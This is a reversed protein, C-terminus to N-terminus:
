YLSKQGALRNRDASRSFAAFCFQFHPIGEMPLFCFIWGISIEPRIQCYNSKSVIINIWTVQQRIAQNCNWWLPTTSRRPKHKSVWTGHCRAERWRYHCCYTHPHSRCSSQIGYRGWGCGWQGGKRLIAASRYGISSFPLSPPIPPIPPLSLPLSPLLSPPPLSPPPPPFSPPPPLSPSLPPPSPFPPPYFPLLPLLLLLLVSPRWLPFSRLERHYGYWAFVCLCCCGVVRWSRAIV